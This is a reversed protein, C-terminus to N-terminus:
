DGPIRHFTVEDSCIEYVDQKAAERTKGRVFIQVGDKNWAVYLPDSPYGGWYAGGPDYDGDVMPVRELHLKAPGDPLVNSRGMPAGRSNSVNTYHYPM